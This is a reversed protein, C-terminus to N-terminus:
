FGILGADHMRTNLATMFEDKQTTVYEVNSEFLAKDMIQSGISATGAEVSITAYINFVPKQEGEVEVTILSSLNINEKIM